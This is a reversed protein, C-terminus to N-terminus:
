SLVASCCGQSVSAYASCLLVSLLFHVSSCSSINTRIHCIEICSTAKYVFKNLFHGLHPEHFAHWLIIPLCGCVSPDQHDLGHCDKNCKWCPSNRLVCERRRGSPSSNGQSFSKRKARVKHPLSARRRCLCSKPSTTSVPSTTSATRAWWASWSIIWRFLVALIIVGNCCRCATKTQLDTQINVRWFWM